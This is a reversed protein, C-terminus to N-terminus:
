PFIIGGDVVIAQGTIFNSDQGALFSVLGAIEDPQAARKMASNGIHAQKTEEESAIGLEVTRNVIGDFMETQVPGPCYCNVTIDLHALEQAAAQSLGKVAFKSACYAGMTPVGLHGGVSSANIIKGGHNLQQFMKVAEQMGNLVGLVNVKFITSLDQHEIKEFPNTICIGANNVIVDFGDLSKNTEAIASRFSQADSVDVPIFAAKRGLKAIESVVESGLGESHKLDSVAVNFGDRALRLSIAKGIGRAGGTVLAVKTM